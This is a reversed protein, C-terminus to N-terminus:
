VEHQDINDWCRLIVEKLEEVDNFQRQEMYVDRVLIGWMNEIPNLEPSNAPWPLVNIDNDFFFTDTDRATHATANGQRFVWDQTAFEKAFPLLSAELISCYKESNISWNAVVLSSLGYWSLAGGYCSVVAEM